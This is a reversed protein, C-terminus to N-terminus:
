TVFYGPMMSVIKAKQNRIKPHYKYVEKALEKGKQKYEKVIPDNMFDKKIKDAEKQKSEFERLKVFAQKLIPPCHKNRGFKRRILSCRQNILPSGFYYYETEQGALPNDNCLPCNANGKRFWEIICKTHYKHNCDLSHDDEGLQSLCIVCLDNAQNLQVIDTSDEEISEEEILSDQNTTDSM